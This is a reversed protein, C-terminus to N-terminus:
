SVNLKWAFEALDNAKISALKRQEESGICFNEGGFGKHIAMVPNKLLLRRFQSNIVAATLVKNLESAVPQVELYSKNSQSLIHNYIM